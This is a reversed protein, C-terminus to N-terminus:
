SSDPSPSAPLSFETLCDSHAFRASLRDLLGTTMVVVSPCCNPPSPEPDGSPSAQLATRARVAEWFGPANPVRDRPPTRGRSSCRSGTGLDTPLFASALPPQPDAPLQPLPESLRLVTPRQSSRALSPYATRSRASASSRM